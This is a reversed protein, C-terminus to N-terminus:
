YHTSQVVAGGVGAGPDGGPLASTPLPERGAAPGLSCQAAARHTRLPPPLSAPSLLPSVPSPTFLSPPTLLLPSPPPFSSPLLSPLLFSPFFSHLSFPLFPLLVPHLFPLLVLPPLCGAARSRATVKRPGREEAWLLGGPWSPLRCRAGRSALWRARVVSGGGGAREQVRPSALVAQSQIRESDAIKKGHQPLLRPSGCVQWAQASVCSKLFSSFVLRSLATPQSRPDQCQVFPPGWPPSPPEEGVLGWGGENRGRSRRCMPAPSSALPMPAPPFLGVSRPTGLFSARLGRGTVLTLAAGKRWGQM